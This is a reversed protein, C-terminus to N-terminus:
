SGPCAVGEMVVEVTMQEVGKKRLYRIMGGGSRGVGIIERSTLMVHSGDQSTHSSTQNFGAEFAV